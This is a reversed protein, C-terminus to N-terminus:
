VGMLEIAMIESDAECVLDFLGSMSFLNRLHANLGCVVIKGGRSEVQKYRGLIVGLGSSDMFNVERFNLVLFKIGYEDILPAVKKRFKGASHDDL